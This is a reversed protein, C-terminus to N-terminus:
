IETGDTEVHQRRHLPTLNPVGRQRKRTRRLEENREACDLLRPTTRGYEGASVIKMEGNRSNAWRHEPQREGDGVVDGGNWMMIEWGHSVNKLGPKGNLLCRGM